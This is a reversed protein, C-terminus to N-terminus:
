CPNYGGPLTGAKQKLKDFKETLRVFMTAAQANFTAPKQNRQQKELAAQRVLFGPELRELQAEERSCDALLLPRVKKTMLQVQEPSCKCGQFLRGAHM